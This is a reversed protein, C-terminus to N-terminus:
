TIEETTSESTIKTKDETTSETTDKIKEETTSESEGIKTRKDGMRSIERNECGCLLIIVALSLIIKKM